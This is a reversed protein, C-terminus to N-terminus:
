LLAAKLSYLIASTTDGVRRAVARAIARQPPLAGAEIETTASVRSANDVPYVHWTTRALRVIPPLGELDYSLTTPPDWAVVRELVTTAGLQVRRVAGVGSDETSALSSHDVEPVWSALGAFDGLLAWIETPTAELDLTHVVHTM